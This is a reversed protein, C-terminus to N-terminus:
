LSYERPYVVLNHGAADLCAVENYQVAFETQLLQGEIKVVSHEVGDIAELRKYFGGVLLPQGLISHALTYHAMLVARAEAVVAEPDFRSSDIFLEVEFSPNRQVYESIQVVIGPIARNELFARLEKKLDPHLATGGAPVVVVEILKARSSRFGKERAIAQWVSSHLSALRTFDDVSVARDMAFLKDAIHTRLSEEPERSNGGFAAFPQQVAEILPHPKALKELTHAACNGVLGNGRRYTIRINDTGPPIMKGKMGDGFRIILSGDSQLEAVYQCDAEGSNHLLEVQEWVEGHVVVEIDAAVGTSFTSNSVYSIDTADIPVAFWPVRENGSSVVNSSARKGHYAKCINGVFATESHTPLSGTPLGEVTLSFCGLERNLDSVTAAYTASETEVVLLANLSLASLVEPDHPAIQNFQIPTKNEQWGNCRLQKKFATYLHTQVLYYLGGGWSQPDAIVGQLVEDTRSVQDLLGWCLQNNRRIVVYGGRVIKDDPECEIQSVGNRNNLQDLFRDLKWTQVRPMVIIKQPNLFDVPMNAHSVRLYSYGEKYEKFTDKGPPHYDVSTVKAGQVIQFKQGSGLWKVDAVERGALWTWDGPIKLTSLYGKREWVGSVSLELARSVYTRSSDFSGLGETSGGTTDAYIAVNRGEVKRVKAFRTRTGDSIAVIDNHVLDPEDKLMIAQKLSVQGSAPGTLRRAVEPNCHIVARGKRIQTSAPLSPHIQLVTTDAKPFVSQLVAAHSHGNEEDVILIPKSAKLDDLRGELEIESGKLIEPCVNHGQAYFRNLRADVSVDAVTEFLLQAESGPKQKIQLGREVVGRKGEKVTLGLYAAASAPPAPVYNVMKALKRLSEWQTATSVTMENAFDNIHEALVHSSRAFGRLLETGWEPTRNGYLLAVQEAAEEATLEPQDQMLLRARYEGVLEAFFTPANGDMYNFRSLGARNWRTLPKM